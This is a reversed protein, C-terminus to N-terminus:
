YEPLQIVVILSKPIDIQKSQIQEIWTFQNQSANIISYNRNCKLCCVRM